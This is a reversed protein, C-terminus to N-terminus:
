LTAAQGSDNICLEGGDEPVPPTKRYGDFSHSHPVLEPSCDDNVLLIHMQSPRSEELWVLRFVLAQDVRKM